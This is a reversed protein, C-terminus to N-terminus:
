NKNNAVKSFPLMEIKLLPTVLLIGMVFARDKAIIGVAQFPNMFVVSKPNWSDKSAASIGVGLFFTPQLGFPCLILPPNVLRRRSCFGIKNDLDPPHKEVWYIM